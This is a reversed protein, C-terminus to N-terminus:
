CSLFMSYEIWQFWTAQIARAASSSPLFEVSSHILTRRVQGGKASGEGAGEEVEGLCLNVIDM